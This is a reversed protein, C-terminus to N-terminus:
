VAYRWGFPDAERGFKIRELREGLRKAVPGPEARAFLVRGEHVVERVHATGAATGSTFAESVDRWEAPDTSIPREEAALNEARALALLSDRTIGALITDSLPPTSLAGGRVLMLNMGGAEELWRRERADLWLVEDFGAARAERQALLAGGYNGACKASGTGGPAARVYRTETRLRVGGAAKFLVPVPVCMVVLAVSTPTSYGLVGDDAYELPRVYLSDPPAPVAEANRRVLEAVRACLEGADVRPLCMREASRNLRALHDLPRFLAVGGDPQRHAKFGEFISAGYHLAHTLLGLQLPASPEIRGPGWAGNAFRQVFVHASPRSGFGSGASTGM